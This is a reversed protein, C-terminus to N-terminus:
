SPMAGFSPTIGLWHFWTAGALVLLLVGITAVTFGYKFNDTVSFQGSAYMIINPKGCIPLGIVWDICFAAPLALSVPDWGLERSLTIIIPIMIVTRITKATSLLHSYMMICIVITYAAGFSFTKLDLNGFLQRVAWEAAGTSDLALGGAYAGASFMLAHWPIEAESWQLLGWRPMFAIICGIMAAIPAAIEVGFWQMHFRDTMWLFIVVGFIAICRWEAETMKGMKGLEQKILDLGGAVQPVKEEAKLPFIFRPGIYWAILMAIIAIPANAFMWDTYYVKHGGMIQIFGVAMLNAASGTMVTSSLISIGFLNLLFLTRGFNNPNDASAGYIAAVVIMLPMTMVTRAATAPILPALVLQVIVFAILAWGATKGFKNILALAMRKALRTKVLMSALIFALINLWIVDMGLVDLVPKTKTVDLFVLMVMLVFSTLYTPVPEMIWWVLALAFCAAGAQGASSLGVGTPWYYILLFVAIGLPFGLYEMWRESATQPTRMKSSLTMREMNLLAQIDPGQRAASASTMEAM